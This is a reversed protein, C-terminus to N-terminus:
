GGKAAGVKQFRGNNRSALGRLMSEEEPRETGTVYYIAHLRAPSPLKKQGEAAVAWIVEPPIASMGGGESATANGDTLMFITEPRLRFAEQLAYDHRTGGPRGEKPPATKMDVGTQIHAIADLKNQDTAPVLQPKWAYAGGSWRVIGFSSRIGLNEILRIAEDRVTQFSQERGHKLLQRRLADGTRTFMSDSVDIMIVVSKARDNIGFFSVGGGTGGLGGAGNGGAGMGAGGALDAVQESFLAAPNVPLAEATPVKPLEPLMLASPRLSAIKDTFSPKPVMGDFEAMNMRHTREQAPLRVDKRVVLKPPPQTLYRAVMWVGAVMGAAVHLGVSVLVVVFIIHRRKERQKM